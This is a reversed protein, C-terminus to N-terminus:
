KNLYKNARNQANARLDYYYLPIDFSHYVGKPFGALSELSSIFPEEATSCVLVGHVADIQADAYHLVTQFTLSHDPMFSGQSESKDAYTDDTKWNIPNIVRGVVGYLVPNTVPPAQTFFYAAQTNYSIIVGTDDPGAAFKLHPNEALYADTIPHGIVYAAVMRSYVDPYDKMYKSLLNSLVTGGQSHGVLIFPRNNNFHKIYYDFAATADLTPIGAIVNLRDISSGNNQRYYPAYINGVTEFATAQRAFAGPAQKLMTPEDIACVHPNAPDTSTWATPYFYFVDVTETVVPISLWHAAQSYDTAQPQSDHSGCAILAFSVWVAIILLPLRKVKM